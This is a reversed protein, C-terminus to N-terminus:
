KHGREFMEEITANARTFRKGDDCNNQHECARPIENGFEDGCFNQLRPDVRGDRLNAPLNALLPLYYDGGNFGVFGLKTKIRGVVNQAPLWQLHVGDGVREKVFERSDAVIYGVM